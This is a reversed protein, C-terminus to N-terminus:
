VQLRPIKKMIDLDAEELFEKMMDEQVNYNYKNVYLKFHSALFKKKNEM